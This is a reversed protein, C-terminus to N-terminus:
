YSDVADYMSLIPTYIAIVITGVTVGLVVIILPEMISTLASVANDVEEEYFDAVKEMMEEINGTEEGIHMMSPLMNPFIEMNRIPVSLPVGKAVQGKCEIVKDRIIKNKMVRGTQEIADIMNIGSGLLTAFTRSFTAAATKVCLPGVIPAKLCFTGTFQQGAPTKRFIKFGVVLAVVIILLLWWKTSIFDSLNVLMQTGAPLKTGMEKFMESFTPIVMVMLLGVVGILVVLIVIPYVMASKIKAQIAGDKEFQIAMREFSVEMKGSTEGAAVMNVLTSPFVKPSQAMAQSMTGGKQVYSAAEQLGAQLSKNTMQEAMMDLASILPVGARLVAAFQKCFVSLDRNTVKGGKKGGGAKVEKGVGAVSFGESRLKARAAEESKAEVTKKASKGASDVVKFSYKAM